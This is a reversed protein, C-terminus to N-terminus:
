YQVIRILIVELLIVVIIVPWKMVPDIEGISDDDILNIIINCYCTM